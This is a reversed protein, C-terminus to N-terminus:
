KWFEGRRFMGSVDGFEVWQPDQDTDILKLLREYVDLRGADGKRVALLSQSLTGGLASGYSYQDERSGSIQILGGDAGRPAARALLPEPRRRELIRLAEGIARFNGASHCTDTILLVNLGPCMEWLPELLEKMVSDDRVFHANNFPSNTYLVLAEDIGDAEDGDNDPLQSGHGSLTLVFMDGRGLGSAHRFVTAKINDWTCEANYLLIAEVGCDEADAALTLADVDAGPCPNARNADTYTLGCFVGRVRNHREGQFQQEAPPPQPQPQPQAVPPQQPPQQPELQTSACGAALMALIPILTRLTKM